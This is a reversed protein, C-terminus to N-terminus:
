VPFKEGVLAGTKPKKSILDHMGDVYVFGSIKDNVSYETKTKIFMIDCDRHELINSCGTKIAVFGNVFPYQIVSGSIHIIKGKYETNNLLLSGYKRDESIEFLEEDLMESIKKEGIADIDLLLTAAM